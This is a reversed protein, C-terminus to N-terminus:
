FISIFTFIKKYNKLEKIPRNVIPNKESVYLQVIEKAGEKTILSQNLSERGKFFAQVMDELSFEKDNLSQAKKFGEIFGIRNQENDYSYNRGRSTKIKLSFSEIALKEVNVVGFKEELGNWDISPLNHKPNDDTAILKDGDWIEGKNDKIKLIM